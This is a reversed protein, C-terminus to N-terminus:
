LPPDKSGVLINQNKFYGLRFLTSDELARLREGKEKGRTGLTRQKLRIRTYIRIFDNWIEKIM